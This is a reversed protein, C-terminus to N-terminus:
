PRHWNGNPFVTMVADGRQFVHNADSTPIETWGADRVYITAAEWM